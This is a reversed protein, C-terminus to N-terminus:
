GRWAYLESMVTDQVVRLVETAILYVISEVVVSVVILGAIFVVSITNESLRNLGSGNTQSLSIVPTHHRTVL